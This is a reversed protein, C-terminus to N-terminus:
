IELRVQSFGKVFDGRHRQMPCLLDVRESASQVLTERLPPRRNELGCALGYQYTLKLDSGQEGFSTPSRERSDARPIVFARAEFPAIPRLGPGRAGRCGALVLSLM